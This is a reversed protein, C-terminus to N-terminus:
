KSKALANNLRDRLWEADRKTAKLLKLTRADGSNLPNYGEMSRSLRELHVQCATRLVELERTTLTITKM